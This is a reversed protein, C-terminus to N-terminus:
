GVPGSLSWGAQWGRQPADPFRPITVMGRLADERPLEDKPCKQSSLDLDHSWGLFELIHLPKVLRPPFTSTPHHHSRSIQSSSKRPQPRAARM